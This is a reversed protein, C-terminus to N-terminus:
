QITVVISREGGHYRHECLYLGQWVGLNLQGHSIPISQSAGILSAKIHAPMDDSGECVHRYYTADEPMLQNFHAEMDHRVDPDANENITVGATTHPVFVTVVGDKMASDTVIKAIESTINTFSTKELTKVSIKKM